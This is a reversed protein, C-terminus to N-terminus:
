KVDFLNKLDDKFKHEKAAPEAGERFVGMNARGDAAPHDSLEKMLEASIRGGEMPTMIVHPKILIIMETRSKVKETGRFLFGILPISGLIPTRYYREEETEKILGGAMVTMDDKAVFTGTISRSSIYDIKRTAEATVEAGNGDEGSAYVEIDAKGAIDSNEQLLRLTVTKDANINPSILLMDGVDKQEIEPVTVAKSGVGQSIITSGATWGSVIPYEKGSFIRSVENNAVLLTPTALTKIKGDEALLQIRTLVHKSVAAFAFTPEFSNMAGAGGAGLYDLVGDATIRGVDLDDASTLGGEGNFKWEFKANFDDDLALELIRMELLVMPTPVDLEKVLRTIEDMVKVDSTRVILKNNRRSMSVFINAASDANRQYVAEFRNTDGARAARDLEKAAAASLMAEPTLYRSRSGGIRGRRRLQDWQNLRSFANGRSFSFEGGGGSTGTTTARPAEIEMFDSNGNEELVRFRRFRRSLDYEDDELFDEEGLSVLTREPYLGYIVGAIEVVNPYLLTFTKTSEERFSSLNEAYEEMTTIRIVGHEPDRRFWLGAARCIEEVAAEATVNRLFISVTKGATADSASINVGTRDAILRLLRGLPVKESELHRLFEPPMEPPAALPSGGGPLVIRSVSSTSALEVGAPTVSAVLATVRVGEVTSALGSGKRIVSAGEASEGVLAVGEGDAGVALAHLRVDPASALARVFTEELAASPRTPDAGGFASLASLFSFVFVSSKM